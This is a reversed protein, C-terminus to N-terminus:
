IQNFDQFTKSKDLFNHESLKWDNFNEKCIGDEDNDSTCNKINKISIRTSNHNNSSYFTSSSAEYFTDNKSYLQECKESKIEKLENKSEEETKLKKRQRKDNM